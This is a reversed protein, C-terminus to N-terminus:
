KLQLFGGNIFLPNMKIGAQFSSYELQTTGVNKIYLDFELTNSSVLVDNKLTVLYYPKM